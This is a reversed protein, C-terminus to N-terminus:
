FLKKPFDNIKGHISYSYFFFFLPMVDLSTVKVFKSVSELDHYLYSQM